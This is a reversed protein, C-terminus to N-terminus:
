SISTGTESPTSRLSLFITLDFSLPASCNSSVSFNVLRLLSTLKDVHGRARQLQTRRCGHRDSRGINPCGERADTRGAVPAGARSTRIASRTELRRNCAHVSSDHLYAASPAPGVAFRIRKGDRARSPKGPDKHPLTVHSKRSRHRRPGLSQEHRLLICSPARSPQKTSVKSCPARTIRVECLRGADGLVISSYLRAKNGVGSLRALYSWLGSHLGFSAWLHVSHTRCTYIVGWASLPSLLRSCASAKRLKHVPRAPRM